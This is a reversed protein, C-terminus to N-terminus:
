FKKEIEFSKEIEFNKEVKHKKRIGFNKENWNKKKQKQMWSPRVRLYVIDLGKVLPLYISFFDKKAKADM